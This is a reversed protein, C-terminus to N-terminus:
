TQCFDAHVLDGASLDNTVLSVNRLKYLLFLMKQFFAYTFVAGSFDAPALSHTYKSGNDKHITRHSQFAKETKNKMVLYNM